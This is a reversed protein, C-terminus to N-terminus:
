RVASAPWRSSARPSTPTSTTTSPSPCPGCCDLAFGPHVVVWRRACETDLHHRYDPHREVELGCVVGWGHLARNHLMMKSRHYAQEDQFDRAAMYKGTYYRNRETAVLGCGSGCNQGSTEDPSTNKPHEMRM